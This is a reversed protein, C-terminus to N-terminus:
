NQQVIAKAVAMPFKKTMTYPMYFKDDPYLQRLVQNMKLADKSLVQVSFTHTKLLKNKGSLKVRPQGHILQFAPIRAWELDPFKEIQAMM